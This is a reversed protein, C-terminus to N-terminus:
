KKGNKHIQKWLVIITLGLTVVGLFAAFCLMWEGFDLATVEAINM